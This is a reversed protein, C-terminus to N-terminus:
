TLAGVKRSRANHWLRVVVQAVTSNRLNLRQIFTSISPTHQIRKANRYGKKASYGFFPADGM